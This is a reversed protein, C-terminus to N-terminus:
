GGCLQKVHDRDGKDANFKALHDNLDALLQDPM